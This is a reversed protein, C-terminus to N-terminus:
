QIHPLLTIGSQISSDVSPHNAMYGDIGEGISDNMGFEEEHNELYHRNVIAQSCMCVCHIVM